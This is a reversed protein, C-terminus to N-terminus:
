VSLCRNQRVQEPSAQSHKLNRVILWVDNIPFESYEHTQILRVTKCGESKNWVNKVLQVQAADLKRPRGQHPLDFDMSRRKDKIKSQVMGTVESIVSKSAGYKILLGVEDMIERKIAAKARRHFRAMDFTLSMTTDDIFCEASKVLEHVLEDFVMAPLNKLSNIYPDRATEMYERLMGEVAAVSVMTM